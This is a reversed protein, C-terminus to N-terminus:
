AGGTMELFFLIVFATFAVGAFFALVEGDRVPPYKRHIKMAWGVRRKKLLSVFSPIFRFEAARLDLSTNSSLIRPNGM